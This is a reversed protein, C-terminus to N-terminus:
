AHEASPGLSVGTTLSVSVLSSHTAGTLAAYGLFISAARDVGPVESYSRCRPWRQQRKAINTPKCSDELHAPVKIGLDGIKAYLKM